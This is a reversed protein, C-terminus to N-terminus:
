KGPSRGDLLLDLSWDGPLEERKVDVKVRGQSLGILRQCRHSLWTLDHSVIIVTSGSKLWQELARDLIEIGKADLKATPEDLFHFRAGTYWSCALGLMAMQSSPLTQPHVHRVAELEFLRLAQELRQFAEEESKGLWEGIALLESDVRSRVFASAPDQFCHSLHHALDSVFWDELNRGDLSVEGCSPAVLGRLLRLLSTKGAGNEGILGVIADGPAQLSLEIQSLIESDKGPHSYSLSKVELLEAQYPKQPLENRFSRQGIQPGLRLIEPPVRQEDFREVKIGGAAPNAPLFAWKDFSAPDALQSSAWVVAFKSQLRGRELVELFRRRALEDLSDVPQDLLIYEPQRVLVSALAVLQKEGMSLDAPNVGSLRSVELELLTDAVRKEIEEIPLGMTLLSWAVEELVTQCFGTLFLRPESAMYGIKSILDLSSFEELPKGDLTVSGTLAAGLPEPHLGSMLTTLLTKGSGSGGLIALREGPEVVIESLAM